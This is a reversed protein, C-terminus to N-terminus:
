LSMILSFMIESSLMRVGPRKGFLATAEEISKYSRPQYNPFVTYDRNDHVNPTSFVSTQHENLAFGRATLSCTCRDFNLKLEILEMDVLDTTIPEHTVRMRVHEIKMLDRQLSNELSEDFEIFDPIQM